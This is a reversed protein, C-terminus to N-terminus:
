RLCNSNPPSTRPGARRCPRGARPRRRRDPSSFFSARGAADTFASSGSGVISIAQFGGLDYGGELKVAPIGVESGQLPANGRGLTEVTVQGAPPMTVNREQNGELAFETTSLSFGNSPVGAHGEVVPFWSISATYTGPLVSISYSGNSATTASYNHGGGSLAVSVHPFVKGNADRVTGTLQVLQPPEVEGPVLVLDLRRTGSVEVKPITTAELPGEKPVVRVDFVGDPVELSYQGEAGTTTSGVAEGSASLTVTVAAGAVPKAEQEPLKGTVTGSLTAGAAASLPATVLGLGVVVCIILVRLLRRDGTM